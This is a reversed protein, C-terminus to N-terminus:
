RAQQLEPTSHAPPMSKPDIPAPLLGMQPNRKREYADLQRQLQEMLQDRSRGILETTATPTVAKLLVGEKLSEARGAATFIDGIPQNTVARWGLSKAIDKPQDEITSSIPNHMEDHQQAALDDSSATIARLSVLADLLKLEAQTAVPPKTPDFASIPETKDAWQSVWIAYGLREVESPAKSLRPAFMISQESTPSATPEPASTRNNSTPASGRISDQTQPTPQPPATGIVTSQPGIPTEM